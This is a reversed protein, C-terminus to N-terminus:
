HTHDREHNLGRLEKSDCLFVIGREDEKTRQKLAPSHIRFWANGNTRTDQLRIVPPWILKASLPFPSKGHEPSLQHLFPRIMKDGEFSPNQLLQESLM